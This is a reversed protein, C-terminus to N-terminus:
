IPNLLMWLLLFYMFYNMKVCQCQETDVGSDACTWFCPNQALKMLVNATMKYKSSLLCQCLLTMNMKAGLQHCRGESVFLHIERKTWNHWCQLTPITQFANEGTKGSLEMVAKIDRRHQSSWCNRSFCLSKTAPSFFLQLHSALRSCAAVIKEQPCSHSSQKTM